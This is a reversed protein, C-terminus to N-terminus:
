AAPRASRVLALLDGAVLPWDQDAATAAAAIVWGEPIMRHHQVMTLDVGTTAHAILFTVSPQARDLDADLLVADALTAAAMEVQGALYRDLSQTPDFPTVVLTLNPAFDGTWPHAQAVLAFPAADTRHRWGEPLDVAVAPPTV